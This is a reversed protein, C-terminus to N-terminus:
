QLQMKLFPLLTCVAFTLISPLPPSLLINLPQLLSRKPLSALATRRVARHNHASTITRRLGPVWPGKMKGGREFTSLM